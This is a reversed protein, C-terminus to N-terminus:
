RGTFRGLTSFRKFAKREFRVSFLVFMHNEIHEQINRPQIRNM